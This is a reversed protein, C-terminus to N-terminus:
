FLYPLKDPRRFSFGGQAAILGIPPLSKWGSLYRKFPRGPQDGVTRDAFLTYSTYQWTLTQNAQTQNLFKLAQPDFPPMFVM